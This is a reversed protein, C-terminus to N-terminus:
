LEKLSNKTRLNYLETCGEADEPWIGNFDYASVTKEKAKSCLIDKIYGRLSMGSKIAKQNLIDIAVTGYGSVLKGETIKDAAGSIPTKLVASIEALLDSTFNHKASLWKTVESPQRGMKIAFEKRSLGSARLADEIEESTRKRRASKENDFRDM